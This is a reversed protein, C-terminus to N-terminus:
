SPSTFSQVSSGLGEKGPLPSPRHRGDSLGDSLRESSDITWKYPKKSQISGLIHDGSARGQGLKLQCVWLCTTIQPPSCPIDVVKGITWTLAETLGLLEYAEAYCM